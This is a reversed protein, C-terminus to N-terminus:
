RFEYLVFYGNKNDDVYTLFVKKDKFKSSKKILTEIATEDDIPYDWKDISIGFQKKFDKKLKFKKVFENINSFTYTEKLSFLM